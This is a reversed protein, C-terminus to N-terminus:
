ELIGKWLKIFFKRAEKANENKNYREQNDIISENLKPLDYRSVNWFKEYPAADLFITNLDM